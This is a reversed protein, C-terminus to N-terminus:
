QVQDLSTLEQCPVWCHLHRGGRVQLRFRIWDEFHQIKQSNLIGSSLCHASVRHIMPKIQNSLLCKIPCPVFAKYQFQKREANSFVYSM